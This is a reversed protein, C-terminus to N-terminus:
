VKAALALVREAQTLVPGDVLRGRVVIAGTGEAVAAAFSSTVEEAWAIEDASPRFATQIPEIQVPHVALKGGFGLGRAHSADRLCQATDRVQLTVGDIPPALGTARSALVIAHRAHEVAGQAADGVLNLDAEYDVSGFAVAIVRPDWRMASLNTVGLATEILPILATRTARGQEADLQSLVFCVAAVDAPTETKPLMIGDARAAVASEIDRLCLPTAPANVRVFLAARRPLTALEALAARAATKEAPPVADELDLVVVDAASALAGQAKRPANAPAFLWVPGYEM